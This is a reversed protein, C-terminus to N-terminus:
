HPRVAPPAACRHGREATTPPCHRRQVAQALYEAGLPLYSRYVPFAITLETLAAVADDIEPVFRALRRVEAQLITTAVARKGDAIQQEFDLDDGTLEVYLATMAGEAAPDLLLANVESLADYGTMGAVPWAPPLQEGPETIKEVTIWCSPAAAALRDLYGGPDVLVM